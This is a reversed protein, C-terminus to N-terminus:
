RLIEKEIRNIINQAIQHLQEYRTVRKIAASTEHEPIVGSRTSRKYISDDSEDVEARQRLRRGWGGSNAFTENELQEAISKLAKATAKDRTSRSKTYRAILSQLSSENNTVLLFTTPAKSRPSNSLEEAQMLTDLIEQEPAILKADIIGHASGNTSEPDLEADGDDGNTEDTDMHESHGNTHDTIPPPQSITTTITVKKKRPKPKSLPKDSERYIRWDHFGFFWFANGASDHEFPGLRTEDSDLQSIATNM